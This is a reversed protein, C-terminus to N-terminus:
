MDLFSSPTSYYYYFAARAFTGNVMCGCSHASGYVNCVYNVGAHVVHGEGKGHSVGSKGLEDVSGEVGAVPGQDRASSQRQLQGPYSDDSYLKQKQVEWVAVIFEKVFHLLADFDDEWNESGLVYLTKEVTSLAKLEAYRAGLLQKLAEQFNDRCTSYSAWLVHVVSECEASRLTCEVRGDRNM